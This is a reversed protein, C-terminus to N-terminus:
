NFMATHKSEEAQLSPNELRAMAYFDQWGTIEGTAADRKVAIKQFSGHSSSSSSASSQKNVAGSAPTSFAMDDDSDSGDNGGQMNIISLYCMQCYRKRDNGPAM